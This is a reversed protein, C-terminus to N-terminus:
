GEQEDGREIEQARVIGLEVQRICFGRRLM